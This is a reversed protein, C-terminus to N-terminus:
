ICKSYVEPTANATHTLRNRGLIRAFETTQAQFSSHAADAGNKVQQNDDATFDPHSAFAQGETEAGREGRIKGQWGQLRRRPPFIKEPAMKM